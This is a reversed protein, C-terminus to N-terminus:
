CKEIPQGKFQIVLRLCKEFVKCTAHVVNDPIAAWIKPIQLKETTSEFVNSEFGTLNIAM